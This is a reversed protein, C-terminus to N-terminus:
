LAIVDPRRPKPQCRRIFGAQMEFEMPRRIGGITSHRRKPHLSAETYDFVDAQQSRRRTQYMKCHVKARDEYSLLAREMAANDWVNGSRSM